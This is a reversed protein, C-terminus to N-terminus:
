EEERYTVLREPWIVLNSKREELQGDWKEMFSLNKSPSERHTNSTSKSLLISWLIGVKFENYKELTKFENELQMHGVVERPPNSGPRVTINLDMPGNFLLHTPGYTYSNSRPVLRTKLEVEVGLTEKGLTYKNQAIKSSLM